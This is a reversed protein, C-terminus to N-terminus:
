LSANVGLFFMEDDGIHGNVFGSIGAGLELSVGVRLLVDLDSDDLDPVGPPTDVSLHSFVLFLGGYPLLIRGNQLELPRSIVGGLPIHFNTIDNGAQIGFGGDLSLDFPISRGAPVIAYRFDAGAGFRWGDDGFDPDWDDLVLEVGLDSLESVNFRGYGVVRILDEGFGVTAGLAPQTESVPPAGPIQHFVQARAAVPACLSTAILLGM